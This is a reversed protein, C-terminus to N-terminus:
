PADLKGCSIPGGAVARTRCAPKGYITAAGLGTTTVDATYRASAGIRGNGDLRVVLDGSLLGAAAITGAGSSSLRARGARGALTMTGDGLLTVVLQDTDLAGVALEGAGSVQLDVRPAGVRGDITLRGGGIVVAGRLDRTTLTIVPADAAGRAPQEGWGSNGARVILTTGEVRIDLGDTAHPSGDATAGPAQRTTLRVDFPGDIRVRDYDSVVYRRQAADAPSSLILLAPAALLLRIM